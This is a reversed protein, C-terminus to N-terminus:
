EIIGILQGCKLIDHEIVKHTLKGSIPAEVEMQAKELGVEAIVDGAQVLQGSDVHWTTLVGEKDDSWWDDPIRVDIM